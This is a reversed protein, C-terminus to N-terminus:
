KLWGRKRFYWFPAIASGVMLAWAWAYGFHWDLEPLIKFNM